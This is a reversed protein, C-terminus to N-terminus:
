RTSELQRLRHRSIVTHKAGDRGLESRFVILEQVTFEQAAFASSQHAAGLERTGEPKKLRAITLHPHFPRPERPFDAKFCEYELTKHLEYFLGDRDQTGLWLVSPRRHAPFVGCGSIQIEFRHSKQTAREVARSLASIRKVPVNSLFKLTLHLTDPRAWSASVKPFRERLDNIYNAIIQRLGSPIEIAIFTRYTDSAPM